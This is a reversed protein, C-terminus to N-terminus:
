ASQDSNVGTIETMTLKFRKGVPFHAAATEFPVAEMVLSGFREGASITVNVLQVNHEWGRTATISVVKFEPKLEM